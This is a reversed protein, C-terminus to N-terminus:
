DVCSFIVKLGPRVAETYAATEKRFRAVSDLAYRKRVNSDDLDLGAERLHATCADCWCPEGAEPAIAFELGECTPDAAARTMWPWIIKAVYPGNLCLTGRLHGAADRQQWDPHQTAESPDCGVLYRARM